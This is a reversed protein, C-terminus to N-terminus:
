LRRQSRRRKLWFYLVVAAIALVMVTGVVLGVIYVVRSSNRSPNLM